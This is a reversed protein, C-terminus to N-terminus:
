RLRSKMSDFFWIIAGTYEEPKASDGFLVAGALNSNLLVQTAGAAALGTVSLCDPGFQIQGSPDAILSHSNQYPPHCLQPLRVLNYERHGPDGSADLTQSIRSPTVRILLHVESEGDTM